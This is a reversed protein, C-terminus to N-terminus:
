IKNKLVKEFGGDTILFEWALRNAQDFDFGKSVINLVANKFTKTFLAKINKNKFGNAITEISTTM